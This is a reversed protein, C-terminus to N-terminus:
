KEREEPLVIEEQTIRSISGYFYGNLICTVIHKINEEDPEITTDLKWFGMVWHPITKKVTM